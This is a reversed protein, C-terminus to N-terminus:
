IHILSLDVVTVHAGRSLLARAVPPGSVGLGAVCVRRGALDTGPRDNPTESTENAM